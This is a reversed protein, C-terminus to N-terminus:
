GTLTVWYLLVKTIKLAGYSWRLLPPQSSISGAEVNWVIRLPASDDRSSTDLLCLYTSSSRKEQQHMTWSMGARDLKQLSSSSGSALFKILDM